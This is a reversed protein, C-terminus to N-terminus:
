GFHSQDNWTVVQWFPEAVETSPAFKIYSVGTNRHRLRHYLRTSMTPTLEDGLLITAAIMQMIGFHSVVAIKSAPHEELFVLAAEARAKLEAFTEEDSHRYHPDTKAHIAARAEKLTPDDEHRDFFLTPEGWEQFVEQEEIELGTLKSIEKATDLARPFPSAILSEVGLRQIREAVLEAQERGRASLLAERGRMVRDLNSESEGHRVLYIHKEM